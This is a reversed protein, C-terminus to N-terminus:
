DQEEWIHKIVKISKGQKIRQYGGNQRIFEYQEVSLEKGFASYIIRYKEYDYPELKFNLGYEKKFKQLDFPAKDKQNEM